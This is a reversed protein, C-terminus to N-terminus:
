DIVAVGLEIHLYPLLEHATSTLDRTHHNASINRATTIYNNKKSMYLYIHVYITDICFTVLITFGLTYVKYIKQHSFTM